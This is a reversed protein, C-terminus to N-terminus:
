NYLSPSSFHCRSSLFFLIYISIYLSSSTYLYHILSYLKLFLCMLCVFLTRYVPFNGRCTNRGHRSACKILKKKPLLKTIEFYLPSSISFSLSLSLYLYHIQFVLFEPIRIFIYSKKRTVSSKYHLNM